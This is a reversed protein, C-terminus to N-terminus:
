WEEDLFEQEEKSLKHPLDVIKKHEKYFEQEWSELKKGKQRKSRINIVTQFMCEGIEKYGGLFTWWHMYPVSRVEVGLVKNIPPAILKFDQEWNMIPPASDNSGEEEVEGDNIIRMMEKAATEFDKIKTIDEYFITLACLIRHNQDLSEDNLAVIVDLVMRYDCNNRIHHKKGDIEVDVPLTDWWSM